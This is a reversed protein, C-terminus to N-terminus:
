NAHNKKEKQKLRYEKQYAKIKEINNLYYRKDKNFFLEPKKVKNEDYRKKKNELNKLRRIEKQYPTMNQYYSKMYESKYLKKEEDSM